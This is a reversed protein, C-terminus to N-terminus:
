VFVNGEPYDKVRTVGYMAVLATYCVRCVKKGVWMRVMQNGHERCRVCM